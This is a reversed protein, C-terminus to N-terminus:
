LSLRADGRGVLPEKGLKLRALDRVLVEMMAVVEPKGPDLYAPEPHLACGIGNRASDPSKRGMVSVPIAVVFRHRAEPHASDGQPVVAVRRDGDVGQEGGLRVQEVLVQRVTV